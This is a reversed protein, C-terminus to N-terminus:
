NWYGDFYEYIDAQEGYGNINDVVDYLICEENGGVRPGRLGRGIM